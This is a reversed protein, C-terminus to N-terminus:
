QEIIEYELIDPEEFWNEDTDDETIRYDIDMTADGLVVSGIYSQYLIIKKITGTEKSVYLDCNGFNELWINSIYYENKMNTISVRFVNRIFNRSSVIRTFCIDKLELPLIGGKEYNLIAIKKENEVERYYNSTNGNCYESIQADNNNTLQTFLFSRIYQEDKKSSLFSYIYNYAYINYYLNYKETSAIDKSKNALSQMIIIKRGFSALFILIIFLIIFKLIRMKKNYKKIFNIAKKNKKDDDNKLDNKMNGLVKSCDKCDKLHTEIFENSETTTLNDIYNPLLDQVIKCDKKNM